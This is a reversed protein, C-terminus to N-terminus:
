SRLFGADLVIALVAVTAIKARAQPWAPRFAVPSLALLLLAVFPLAIEAYFTWATINDRVVAVGRTVVNPSAAEDSVGDPNEFLGPWVVPARDRDREAWAAAQEFYSVVGGNL